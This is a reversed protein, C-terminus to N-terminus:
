GLHDALIGVWFMPERVGAFYGIAGKNGLRFYGMDSIDRMGSGKPVSGVAVDISVGQVVTEKFDSRSRDLTLLMPIFDDPSLLDAPIPHNLM